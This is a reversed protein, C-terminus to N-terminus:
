PVKPFIELKKTQVADDLIEKDFNKFFNLKKRNILIREINGEVIEYPAPTNYKKYDFIKLLYVELSDKFVFFDRKKLDITLTNLLPIKKILYNKNIWVPKDFLFDNFQYNISDLFFLDKDSFNRLRSKILNLNNNSEPLIIYAVNYYDDKLRFNIKNKEYYRIKKFSDIKNNFNSKSLFNRYTNTWLELKYNEVMKTLKKQITDHLHLLSKGYVLNKIAWKNIISKSLILSDEYSLESSIENEFDSLYLFSSNVRAVKKVKETQQLNDCSIFFILLILIRM